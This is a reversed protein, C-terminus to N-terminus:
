YGVGEYEEEEKERAAPEPPFIEDDDDGNLHAFLRGGLQTISLGEEQALAKFEFHTDVDVVARQKTRATTYQAHYSPAPQQQIYRSVALKLIAAVSVGHREALRAIAQARSAEFLFVLAKTQTHTATM